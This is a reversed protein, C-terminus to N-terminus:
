INIPDIVWREMEIGVESARDLGRRREGSGKERPATRHPQQVRALTRRCAPHAPWPRGDDGVGGGVSPPPARRQGVRSATSNMSSGREDTGRRWIRLSIQADYGLPVPFERTVMREVSAFSADTGSGM